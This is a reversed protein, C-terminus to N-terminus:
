RLETLVAAVALLAAAPRLWRAGDTRLQEAWIIAAIPVVLWWAHAAAYMPLMLLGCEGVCRSGSTLGARVCGRDAAFGRPPIAPVRHCDRLFERKGPTLQWVAAAALAVPVLDASPPLQEFVGIAMAGFMIWVFLYAVLFLAPGRMRRTWMGDLAVRRASPLATPLMMAVTMASAAVLTAAASSHSWGDAHSVAVVAWALGSVAFFPLEPHAALFGERLDAVRSRSGALTAM